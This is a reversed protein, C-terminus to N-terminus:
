IRHFGRLMWEGVAKTVYRVTARGGRDVGEAQARGRRIAELVEEETSVGEVLTVARGIEDLFHADSGGVAGVGRNAALARARANGRRLTRANQVEYAAFPPGVTQTEGLGSWFRFPHAAVPLGGLALIRDVTERSGLGRPIPEAVGYALVHGDETSVETGRIVLLGVSRAYERAAAAGAVANHDTIALGDLGRVKAVKVMEVPDLASDPSFRSHSHLDVRVAPPVPCAPKLNPPPV